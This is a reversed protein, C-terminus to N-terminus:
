ARMCSKGSMFARYTFDGREALRCGCSVLESLIKQVIHPSGHCSIEISEEGTYSKNQDFVTIVFEDIVENKKTKLKTYYIKHSELPKKESKTKLGPAMELIIKKADPGSLRLVSIAGSGAGSSLACITKKDLLYM